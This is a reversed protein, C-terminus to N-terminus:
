SKKLLGIWAFRFYSYHYLTRPESKIRKHWELMKGFFEIRGVPKQDFLNKLADLKMCIAPAYRSFESDFTTKLIIILESNKVCLDVAVLKEDYYYKWVEANKQTALDQMIENFFQGQENDIHIATGLENKWSKSELEGYQKISEHMTEPETEIVLQVKIDQKKLRNHAKNYNQRQNKGLNAFYDKFDQDFVLKGTEIYDKIAIKKDKLPPFIAPDQHLVDLKLVFSPLAKILSKLATLQQDNPCLWLGVPAQSPQFTEWSLFGNPKIFTMAIVQNDVKAIALKESGDAFYTLCSQIFAANLVPLKTLQNNLKQWDDQWHVFENSNLIEWKM